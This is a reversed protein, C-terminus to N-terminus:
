SEPIGAKRLGPIVNTEAQKLYVPNDSLGMKNLRAISFEPRRRLLEAKSTAARTVDGAQAYAVTVFFYPWWDDGGAISKECSTIAEEFRGLLVQAYCQNHRFNPNTDLSPDRALADDAIRLAEDARGMMSLLWGRQVVYGLHSPDLRHAENM